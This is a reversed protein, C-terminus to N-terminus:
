GCLHLRNKYIVIPVPSREIRLTTFEILTTRRHRHHLPEHILWFTWADNKSVSNPALLLMFAARTRESTVGPLRSITKSRVEWLGFITLEFKGREIMQTAM